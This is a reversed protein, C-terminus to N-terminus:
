AEIKAENLLKQFSRVIEMAEIVEKQTPEYADHIVKNRLTRFKNDVLIWEKSKTIDQEIVHKLINEITLKTTLRELEKVKQDTLEGRQKLLDITVQEVNVDLATGLDIVALRYEGKELYSKANLILLEVIPPQAGAEFMDRIRTDIEAGFPKPITSIGPEGFASGMILKGEENCNIWYHLSQGTRTAHFEAITLPHVETDLTLFRYIDIFRNLYKHCRTISNQIIKEENNSLSSVRKWFQMTVFSYQLMAGPVNINHAETLEGTSVKHAFSSEQTTDEGLNISRYKLHILFENNTLYGHYAGDELRIVFPLALSLRVEIQRKPMEKQMHHGAELNM